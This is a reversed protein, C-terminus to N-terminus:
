RPTGRRALAAPGHADPGAEGARARDEAHQGAPQDELPARPPRRKTAVATRAATAKTAASTSAGSCRRGRRPRSRGARAVQQGADADTRQDVPDDVPASAPQVVVLAARRRERDRGPRARRTRRAPLQPCRSRHEVHPQEGQAAEAGPRQRERDLEQAQEPEEEDPELEQQQDEAVARQVAREAQERQRAITIGIDLTAGCRTSRKPCRATM